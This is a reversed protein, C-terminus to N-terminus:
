NMLNKMRNLLEDSPNSRGNIVLSLHTRSIHLKKAVYTYKLGNELIYAKFHKIEM